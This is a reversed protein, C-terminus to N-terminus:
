FTIHHETLVTIDATARYFQVLTPLLAQGNSSIHRGANNNKKEKKLLQLLM